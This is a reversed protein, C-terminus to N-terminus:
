QLRLAQKVTASHRDGSYIYEVGLSLEEKGAVRQRPFANRSQPTILRLSRRTKVEKRWGEDDKVTLRLNESNSSSKGKLIRQSSNVVSMFALVEQYMSICIYAQPYTKNIHCCPYPPLTLSSNFSIGWISFGLLFFSEKIHTPSNEASLASM